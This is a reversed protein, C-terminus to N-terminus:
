KPHVWLDIILHKFALNFYHKLDNVVDTDLLYAAPKLPDVYIQIQLVNQEIGLEIDLGLDNFSFRFQNNNKPLITQVTNVVDRILVKMRHPFRQEIEILSVSTMDIDSSYLGVELIDRKKFKDGKSRPLMKKSTTVKKKPFSSTNLFAHFEDPSSFKKRSKKSADNDFNYSRYPPLEDRM